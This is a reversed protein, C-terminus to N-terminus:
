SRCRISVVYLGARAPAAAMAVAAAVVVVVAGEATAATGGQGEAAGLFWTRMKGKAMELRLRQRKRWCGRPASTPEAPFLWPTKASCRGLGRGHATGAESSGSGCPRGLRSRTRILLLLYAGVPLTFFHIQKVYKLQVGLDQRRAQRDTQRTKM